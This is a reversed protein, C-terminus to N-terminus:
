EQGQGDPCQEEALLKSVLYPAERRAVALAETWAARAGAEDGTACLARRLLRLRAVLGPSDDFERCLETSRSIVELAEGAAGREILLQGMEYLTNSVGWPQNAADELALAERLHAEADPYRGWGAHVDALGKLCQVMGWHDEQERYHALCGSYLREAEELDEAFWALSARELDLLSLLRVDHVQEAIRAAVGLLEQASTMDGAWKHAMASRTLLHAMDSEDGLRRCAGVALELWRLGEGPLAAMWFVPWVAWVTDRIVTDCGHANAWELAGRINDLDTRAVAIDHKQKQGVLDLTHAVSAFHAMARERCPDAGEGLRELCYARVVPLMSYRTRGLRSETALLSKDHLAHLSARVDATSCVAEAADAYFGGQFVAVETLAQADRPGLLGVSWDIAAQMSALRGPVGRLKAEPLAMREDLSASLEELTMQSLAAAALEIGLPLGTVSRCIRAAAEVEDESLVRGRAEAARANFLRLSEATAQDVITAAADPLELPRLEYIREGKVHLRERSTVVCKVGPARTLIHRPTDAADLLHELNDLLLLLEKGALLDATDETPQTGGAPIPLRLAAAIAAPVGDPSPVDALEVFWVGDRFADLLSMGLRQVLRTKGVGGPGTITILRTSPQSLLDGLEGLEHERGVFEDVDADLNTPLSGLDRLPVYGPSAQGPRTILYLHVPQPIGRLQRSGLDVFAVYERVDRGALAVVISSAIIQGGCATTLLRKALNVAPGVCEGDVVEVEGVHVAVRLCPPSQGEPWKADALAQDLTVACRLAESACGFTFLFGDGQFTGEHGGYQAAANRVASNHAALVEGYRRGHTEWQTVSGEIDTFMLALTGVPAKGPTISSV